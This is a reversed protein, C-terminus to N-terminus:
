LCFSLRLSLGPQPAAPGRQLGEGAQLGRRLCKKWQVSEEVAADHGRCHGEAIRFIADYSSDDVARDVSCVVKRRTLQKAHPLISPGLDVRRLAWALLRGASRGYVGGRGDM